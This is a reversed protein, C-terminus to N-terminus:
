QGQEMGRLTRYVTVRSVVGTVIAVLVGIIVLSVYGALPLSFRGFLAEVQEMGPNNTM